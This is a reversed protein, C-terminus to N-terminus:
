VDYRQLLTSASQLALFVVNAHNGIAMSPMVAARASGADPCNQAAQTQKIMPTSTVAVQTPTKVPSPTPSAGNGSNTGCASFVVLLCFLACFCSLRRSYHYM